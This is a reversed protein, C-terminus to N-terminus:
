TQPPSFTVSININHSFFIFRTPVVKVGLFFHLLRMGKLSFKNGLQKIISVVFQSQNGTIVLDNVHVLLYCIVSGQNYIFLSSNAKSINFSLSLIVEKLATYWARLAQKLGDIVKRLRCAHNLKFLEKFGPVLLIYVTETLAGNLFILM